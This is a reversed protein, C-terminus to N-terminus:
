VKGLPMISCYYFFFRLIVEGTRPKGIMVENPKYGVTTGVSASM